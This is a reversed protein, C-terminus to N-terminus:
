KGVDVDILRWYIWYLTINDVPIFIIHWIRAADILEGPWRGAAELRPRSLAFGIDGDNENKYKSVM